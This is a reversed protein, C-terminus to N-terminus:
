FGRTIRATYSQRRRARADYTGRDRALGRAEAIAAIADDLLARNAEAEDRLGTLAERVRRRDAVAPEDGAPYLVRQLTDAAIRKELALRELTGADLRSIAVRERALVDKLDAVAELATNEMKGEMM